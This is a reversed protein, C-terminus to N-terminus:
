RTIYLYYLVTVLVNHIDM